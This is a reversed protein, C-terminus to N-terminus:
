TTIQGKLYYFLKHVVVVVVVVVVRVKFDVISWHITQKM